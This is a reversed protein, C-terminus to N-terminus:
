HLSSTTLNSTKTDRQNKIQKKNAQNNCCIFVYERFRKNSSLYVFFDFAAYANVLLVVLSYGFSGVFEFNLSFYVVYLVTYPLYCIILYINLWLLVKFYRKEMTFDKKNFHMKRKILRRTTLCTFIIMTTVPLVMTILMNWSSIFIGNEKDVACGTQNLPKDVYFYFPLNLLLLLAFVTIVAIAQCKAQTRWKLKHPFRVALYRDVASLSNIWPMWRGAIFSTYSVIKCVLGIKTVMFFDPFGLPWTFLVRVTSGLTSMILYRFTSEKLFEPRSLIILVITNGLIGIVTFTTSATLNLIAQINNM